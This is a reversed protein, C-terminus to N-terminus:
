WQGVPKTYESKAQINYEKNLGQSPNIGEEYLIAQVKVYYKDGIKLGVVKNNEIDIKQKGDTTPQPLSTYVPAETNPKSNEEKLLQVIYRIHDKTYGQKIQIPNWTVIAGKGSGTTHDVVVPEKVPAIEVNYIQEELKIKKESRLRLYFKVKKAGPFATLYEKPNDTTYSLQWVNEKKVLDYEKSSSTMVKVEEVQEGKVKFEYRFKYVFQGNEIFTERVLYADATIDNLDTAFIEPSTYFDRNGGEGRLILHTKTSEGKDIVWTKAGGATRDNIKLQDYIKDNDTDVLDWSGVNVDRKGSLEQRYLEGGSIFKYVLIADDRDYDKAIFNDAYWYKDALDVQSLNLDNGGGGSSGCAVVSFSGALVLLGNVLKTILKNM